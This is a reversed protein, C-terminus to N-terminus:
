DPKPLASALMSYVDHTHFCGVITPVRKSQNEECYKLSTQAALYIGMRMECLGPGAWLHLKKM